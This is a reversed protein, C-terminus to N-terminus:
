GGPLILKPTDAPIIGGFMSNYQVVFEKVPTMIALVHSKDLEVERDESFEAWPALGISPNKPDVKSPIIVLRVINKLKILNGDRTTEALLEEGNLLKIYKVAM